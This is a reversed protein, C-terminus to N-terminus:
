MHFCPAQQRAVQISLEPFERSLFARVYPVFIKELGFHGGDIISIGQEIADLGTHHKIDGTIMVDAGMSLAKNLYDAGSGPVIAAREIKTEPEGYVSVVELDFVEKVYAACEELTMTKFLQGIRGIGEKSIDDEYTIDLVQCNNLQMLDAAEDAMGMVDFNTHMAYCSIDHQILKIVKRSVFNDDTIQKLGSFIMPHHTILMDVDRLIAQDIVADTADVALMVSHVEKEKSGVLLGVNDWDEAFSRPSLEELKKMIDSCKM